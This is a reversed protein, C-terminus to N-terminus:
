RWFLRYELDEGENQWTRSAQAPTLIEQRQFHSVKPLEIGPGGLPSDMSNLEDFRRHHIQVTYSDDANLTAKVSLGTELIASDCDTVGNQTTCTKRYPIKSAVEATASMGAQTPAQLNFTSVLKPESGTVNYVETVLTRSDPVAATAFGAIAAAVAFLAIRKM